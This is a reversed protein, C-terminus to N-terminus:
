HSKQPFYGTVLPMKQTKCKCKYMCMLYLFTYVCQAYVYSLPIHLCMTCVLCLYINICQVYVNSLPTYLCVQVCRESIHRYTSVNYMSKLCLYIYVFTYTYVNDMGKEFTDIYPCRRTYWPVNYMPIYLCMTCLFTYACQVYTYTPM